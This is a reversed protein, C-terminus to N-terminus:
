DRFPNRVEIQILNSVSPIVKMGASGHVTINDDEIRVDVYTGTSKGDEAPDLYFRVVADNALPQLEFENDRVFTNTEPKQKRTVIRPRKAM